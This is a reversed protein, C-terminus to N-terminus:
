INELATLLVLITSILYYFSAKTKYCKQFKNQRLQNKIFNMFITNWDKIFKM